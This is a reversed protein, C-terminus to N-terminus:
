YSPSASHLFPNEPIQIEKSPSLGFTCVLQQAAKMACVCQELASSWEGAAAQHPLVYAWCIHYLYKLSHSGFVLADM